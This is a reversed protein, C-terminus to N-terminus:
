DTVEKECRSWATADWRGTLPISRNIQCSGSRLEDLTYDEATNSQSLLTVGTPTVAIATNWGDNNNRFVSGPPVDRPELAVYRPEPKVRYRRNPAWQPECDNWHEGDTPSGVYRDSIQIPKGAAHAAKVEALTDPAPTVIRYAIIISWWLRKAKETRESRGSSTEWEVGTEPPVPCEGGHHPLWDSSPLPRSTRCFYANEKRGLSGLTNATTVTGNYSSSERRWGQLSNHPDFWEDNACWTEHDLLPRYGEQLMWQTWGEKHWQRGPPPDPLRWPPLTFRLVSYPVTHSCRFPTENLSISTCYPLTPDFPTTTMPQNDNVNLIASKATNLIVAAV